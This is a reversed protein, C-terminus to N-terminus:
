IISIDLTINHHISLHKTSVFKLDNSVKKTKTIYLIYIYVHVAPSAYTLATFCMISMTHVGVNLSAM